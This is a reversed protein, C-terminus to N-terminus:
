VCWARGAQCDKCLERNEESLQRRIQRRCAVEQSESRLMFTVEAPAVTVVLHFDSM